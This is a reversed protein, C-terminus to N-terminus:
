VVSEFWEDTLLKYCALVLTNRDKLDLISGSWQTNDYWDDKATVFDVIMNTLDVTQSADTLSQRLSSYYAHQLM